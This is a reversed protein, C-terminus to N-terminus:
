LSLPRCRGPRACGASSCPAAWSPWPLFLTNLVPVWLIVYVAAGSAWARSGGRGILVQRVARFPYLHRAMPGRPARGGDLEHELPQGLVAFAVSGVGPVLHLPLLLRSGWRAAAGGPRAHLRAGYGVGRVFHGLRFPAGPLRRVAGRHGGSLPDQLPTLLLLPVTNAGVILLLVFTLLRVLEWALLAYWATPQPWAWGVLSRPAAGVAALHAGGPEGADGGRVAGLPRAAAPSRLILGFARFPLGMGLFFDGASPRPGFLPVVAPRPPPTPCRAPGTCNLAFPAPGTIYRAGHGQVELAGLGRGDGRGIVRTSPRRLASFGAGPM